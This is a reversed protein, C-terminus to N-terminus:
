QCPQKATFQTPNRTCASTGVWEATGSVVLQGFGVNCGTCTYYSQDDVISVGVSVTSATTNTCVGNVLSAGCSTITTSALSPSVSAGPALVAVGSAHVCYDHYGSGGSVYVNDSCTAASQCWVAGSSSTSSSAGGCSPASIVVDMSVSGASPGVPLSASGTEIGKSAKAKIIYGQSDFQRDVNEITQCMFEIGATPPIVKAAKCAAATAGFAAECAPILALAAPGTAGFAACGETVMATAVPGMLKCSKKFGGVWASCAAAFNAPLVSTSTGVYSTTYVGPSTENPYLDYGLLSSPDSVPAIRVWVTAGSVPGNSDSVNVTLISQPLSSAAPVSATGIASAFSSTVPSAAAPPPPPLVLPITFSNGDPTNATVTFNTADLYTFDLTGGGSLAVHSPRGQTDQEVLSLSQDTAKFYLGGLQAPTGDSNKQGFLTTVDGSPLTFGVALPNETEPYFTTQSFPAADVTLPFARGITSDDDHCYESNSKPSGPACVGEKVRLLGSISTGEMTGAPVDLSVTLTTTSGAPLPGVLNPSVSVTGTLGANPLVTVPSSTANTAVLQVTFTRHIGPTAAVKLNSPVWSFEASIAPQNTIVSVLVGAFVATRALM